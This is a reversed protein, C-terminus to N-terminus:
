PADPGALRAGARSGSGDIPLTLRFLAGHPENPAASLQGGHAAIISHSIALGMGMGDAKTTYFSQFLRDANTPDLGVGTDRVEVLAQDKEGVGSTITLERPRDAVGDMAEVANVLLNLVVQQLQLSDAMVRPMKDALRSVLHVRHRTLKTQSLAVVERIVGNVDVSERRPPAKKALGRIRSVIEGVRHGNAAIAELSLRAEDVNPPRAALWRLGASANTILASVPQNIEHAISSTMEGLVLVRHMRTLDAEAQRLAERNRKLETTDTNTELLLVPQGQEDRQLSWRSDVFRKEGDRRTHVIEGTWRGTRRLEAEIEALPAPFITNLLEHAVRGVAETRHWGYLEEAGRNWLEIRDDADRSFMAAQTLDLLGAQERLKRQRDQAQLLFWTTLAITLPVLGLMNVAGALVGSGRPIILTDILFTSVSLVACAAAVLVLQRGRFFRAALLVVPLYFLGVTIELGTATDVIFVAVALALTAVPVARSGRIDAPRAPNLM